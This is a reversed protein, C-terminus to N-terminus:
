AAEAAAAQADEARAGQLQLRGLLAGCVAGALLVGLAPGVTPKLCMDCVVALALGTNTWGLVHVSGDGRPAPAHASAQELQVLERRARAGTAAGGAMLLVFGALGAEVWGLQWSWAGGVQIMWGGTALLLLLAVPFVRSAAGMLRHWQLADAVTVARLRRTSALHVIASTAIAALLSLIHLLLATPYTTM